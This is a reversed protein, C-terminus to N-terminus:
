CLCRCDAQLHTPNWYATVLFELLHFLTWAVLYAHLAPAFIASAPKAGSFWSSFLALARPACLGMGVGLLAATLAVNGAAPSFRVPFVVPHTVRFVADIRALLVHFAGNMSHMALM